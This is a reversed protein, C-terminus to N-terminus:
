KGVMREEWEKVAKCVAEKNWEKTLDLSAVAEGIKNHKGIIATAADFGASFCDKKNPAHGYLWGSGFFDLWAKEKM